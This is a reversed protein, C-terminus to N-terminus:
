PGRFVASCHGLAPPGSAITDYLELLKKEEVAWNFREITARRGNEGMEKAMAPNSVLTDIAQAIAQPNMPDVCIGCQNGEIIDRWLPFNSAIVPLGASMYEFMKVPLSDLYNATPHLTVLGAMSRGLVDRVGTRDVQGWTQVNAYGPLARAQLEADTFRGALHLRTPNRVLSMAQVLELIGRIRCIGGVYCVSSERGDWPTPSELEGLMPFNNIDVVIPHIAAYRDRITPTATIIADLQSMCRSEYRIYGWALWRRLTPTLYPKSLMQKGVDEHADFIVRAGNRHLAAAIPLLEPDHLHYIDAGLRQAARLVRRTAGLMRRLRGRSAGMDLIDVGDRREAGLGDAVVLTVQHGAQALSRCMKLFIRTDHRPHVSTLHAIRM